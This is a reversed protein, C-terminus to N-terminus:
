RGPAPPRPMRGADGRGADGRGNHQMMMMGRRPMLEAKQTADLSNYFAEFSPLVENLATLKASDIALRSKIRALFDPKADATTAPKAAKCSDAFSTQTTLATTRFTDFLKQQDASLDFKHDLRVLALELAEAGKDSCALDLISGPGMEGRGRLPRMDGRGHDKGRAAVPAPVAAEAAAPPASPAPATTQAAAPLASLGMSAAVLAALALTSKM